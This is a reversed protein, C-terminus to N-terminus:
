VVNRASAGQIAPAHNASGSIHLLIWRHTTHRPCRCSSAAAACSPRRCARSFHSPDSYGVLVMVEKVSLFTRELLLGARRLRLHQLYRAPAMGTQAAFLSRFRSPSLNVRAALAPIAIPRSLGRQMHNVAWTIRQDIDGRKMCAIMAIDSGTHKGTCAYTSARVLMQNLAPNM